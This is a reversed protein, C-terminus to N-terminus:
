SCFALSSVTKVTGYDVWSSTNSKLGGSVTSSQQVISPGYGTTSVQGVASNIVGGYSVGADNATMAKVQGGAGATSTITARAKVKYGQKPIQLKCLAISATASGTASVQTTVTGAATWAANTQASTQTAIVTSVLVGLVAVLSLKIFKNM